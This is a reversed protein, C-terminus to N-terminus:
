KKITHKYNCMKLVYNTIEDIKSIPIKEMVGSEKKKIIMILEKIKILFKM